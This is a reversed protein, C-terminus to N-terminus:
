ATCAPPLTNNPVSLFFRDEYCTESPLDLTPSMAGRYTSTGRYTCLLPAHSIERGFLPPWRFRSLCVLFADDRITRAFTGFGNFDFLNHNTPRPSFFLSKHRM